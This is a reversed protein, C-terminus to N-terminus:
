TSVKLFIKKLFDQVLFFINKTEMLLVFSINKAFLSALYKQLMQLEEFLKYAVTSFDFM